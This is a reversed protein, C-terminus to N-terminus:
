RAKLPSQSPAAGARELAGGVSLKIDSFDGADQLIDFASAQFAQPNLGNLAVASARRVERFEAKNKMIDALLETAGPDSGLVRVAQARTAADSGATLLDRAIGAASNHDNRALMGLAVAQPVLPEGIGRLGEILKQRSFEDDFNVLKDLASRRLGADADTAATRLAALYDANFPAFQASLFTGSQLIQAADKRVEASLKTDALKRLADSWSKEPAAAPPVIADFRLAAPGLQAEVQKRYDHVNM